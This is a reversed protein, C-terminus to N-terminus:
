ALVAQHFEYWDDLNNLNVADKPASVDDTMGCAGLIGRRTEDDHNYGRVAANHKEITDRNLSQCEEKGLGRIRSLDAQETQHLKESGARRTRGGCSDDCRFRQWRWSLRFCTQREGGSLGEALAAASTFRWTSRAVGSSILPVYTDSM